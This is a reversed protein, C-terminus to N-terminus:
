QNVDKRHRVRVVCIVLQEDQIEYLIRYVGCRLRYKEDGCLKKSQSPRPVGALAGIAAVIRRGDKRPIRDLDKLVSKRVVVSYREM